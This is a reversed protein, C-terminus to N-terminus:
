PHRLTPERQLDRATPETLSPLAPVIVGRFPNWRVVMGALQFVVLAALILCLLKLVPGARERLERM